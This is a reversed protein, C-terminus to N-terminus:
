RLMMWGGERRCGGFNGGTKKADKHIDGGQEYFPIAGFGLLFHSPEMFGSSLM